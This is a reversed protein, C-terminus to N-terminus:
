QLLQRLLLLQGMHYANHDAAMFLKRLITQGEGNSLPALLDRSSNGALEALAKLDARFAAASQEWAKENPPSPSSPWYGAPFDPSAHSADRISDLIDRQAIRLHELVEWSSHPSGKPRQGRAASPLDQIVADLDLHAGDGNLLHLLHERIAKDDKVTGIREYRQVRMRKARFEGELNWTKGDPDLAEGTWRFSDPTIARFIWRIPTGDPHRGVQVVERGSWRGILEDRVGTLPNIWTVRWAQISADWVRLTTGYMNTTRDVTSSRQSRRPMIWTDQVARGELVWAFHAEGKLGLATVDVGYRLVDLEWSGILWGYADAAEPIEPSRAAAALANLEINEVTEITAMM